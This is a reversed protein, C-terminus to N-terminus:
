AIITVNTVEDQIRKYLPRKPSPVVVGEQTGKMKETLANTAEEVKSSPKGPPEGEFLPASSHFNRIQFNYSGNFAGPPHLTPFITAQGVGLYHRDTGYFMSVSLQQSISAQELKRGRLIQNGCRTQTANNTHLVRSRIGSFTDCFLLPQLV